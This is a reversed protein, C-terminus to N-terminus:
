ILFQYKKKNLEFEISQNKIKRQISNFMIFRYSDKNLHITNQPKSESFLKNPTSNGVCYTSNYNIVEDSFMKILDEKSRINKIKRAEKILDISPKGDKRKSTIGDGLYGPVLKLYLQGFTGFWSEINGKGQPNQPAHKSIITGLFEVRGIFELYEKNLLGSFNDSLIEGPLFGTSKISMKLCNIYDVHSERRSCSYGMIKKSYVDVAVIVYLIQPFNNEDKYLFNLRSGDIQYQDGINIPPKREPHENIRNLEAEGYRAMRAASYYNSKLIVNRITSVSLKQKGELIRKTNVFKM